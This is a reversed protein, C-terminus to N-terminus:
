DCASKDVTSIMLVEYVVDYGLRRASQDLM